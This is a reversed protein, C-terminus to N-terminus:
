AVSRCKHWVTKEGASNPRVNSSPNPLKACPGIAAMFVNAELRTFKTSECSGGSVLTSLMAAVFRPPATLESMTRAAVLLGYVIELVNVMALPAVTVIWGPVVTRTFAPAFIVTAFPPRRSASPMAEDGMRKVRLPAAPFQPLMMMLPKPAIAPAKRLEM